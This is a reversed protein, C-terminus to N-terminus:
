DSSRGGESDGADGYRCPLIVRFTTGKGPSTELELSANLLECLRKVISLGVGEGTVESAPQSESQSPQTPAGAIDATTTEDPNSDVADKATETADHINHALPASEPDENLGPGTDQVCFMWKETLDDDVPSWIIKVGGRKTYKLANLLLNQLIRRVKAPDGEVPLSEPGETKLFLGRATALPQSTNCFDTVLAAADFPSVKRKELGADLRALSMFDNLMDRLSMNGRRLLDLFEDRAPTSLDKRDLVSTAISVLSLGGQLDHAAERWTASRIQDIENLTSLAHELDRVHGAAEEQNLRWYQTASDSIGDWCLKSWAQKASSMLENSLDPNTLTHNDLEAMVCQHLLGWERTLDRLQYGQHWRQLGHESVQDQEDLKSSASVEAPWAQLIRDFADLVGPIHDNFQVSTLSSAVSVGPADETAKRWDKLISKRQNSLHAALGAFPTQPNKKM